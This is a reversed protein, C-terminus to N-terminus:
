SRLRAELQNRLQQSQRSLQALQVVEQMAEDPLEALFEVIEDLSADTSVRTVPECDGQDAQIVKSVASVSRGTQQAIQELSLGQQDLELMQARLEAPVRGRVGKTPSSQEIEVTCSEMLLM